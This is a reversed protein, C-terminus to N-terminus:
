ADLEVNWYHDSIFSQWSVKRRAMPVTLTPSWTPEKPPRMLHMGAEELTRNGKRRNCPLCALVCNLWTSTGGHSRSIIHDVSLETPDKRRGCYQCRFQDRRYINRRSFPIKRVPFEDYRTLLLVEPIKIRLCVTRICPEEENVRLNSWSDFDHVTFDDPLIISATERFVMSIAERVTTTGIPVWSRNLVLARDDLM